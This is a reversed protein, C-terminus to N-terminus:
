DFIFQTKLGTVINTVSITGPWTFNYRGILYGVAADASSSNLYTIFNGSGHVVFLSYQAQPRWTKM